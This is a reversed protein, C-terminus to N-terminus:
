FPLDDDIVSTIMGAKSVSQLFLGVTAVSNVIFHAYVSDTILVEDDTQGHFNTKTSRLTEIAQCITILSNGITKIEKPQQENMLKLEKVVMIALHYLTEKGSLKAQIRPAQLITKILSELTSNCLGIAVSPDDEVQKIAKCFTDYATNAVGKLENKFTPISPIYDPTEVGMDIAVKLLIDGPMNHLTQLLDIDKSPKFAIEFNQWNWNEDTQQWKKIYFNVERYTPYVEWLADSVQKALKM